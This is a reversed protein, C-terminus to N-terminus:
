MVESLLELLGGVQIRSLFYPQFYFVFDLLGGIGGGL